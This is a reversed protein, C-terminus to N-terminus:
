RGRGQNGQGPTQTAQQVVKTKLDDLRDAWYDVKPKWVGLYLLGNLLVFFVIWLWASYVEAHHPDIGFSTWFRQVSRRLRTWFTGKKGVIALGRPGIFDLYSPHRQVAREFAGAHVLVAELSHAGDKYRPGLKRSRKYLELVQQHFSMKEFLSPEFDDDIIPVKARLLLDALKDIGGRQVEPDPLIRDDLFREALYDRLFEFDSKLRAPRHDISVQHAVRGYDRRPHWSYIIAILHAILQEFTPREYDAPVTNVWTAIEQSLQALIVEDQVQSVSIELIGLEQFITSEPRRGRRLREIFDRLMTIAPNQVNDITM